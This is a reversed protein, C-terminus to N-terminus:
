AVRTFASWVVCVTSLIHVRGEGGGGGGGLKSTVKTRQTFYSWISYLSFDIFHNGQWTVGKVFVM